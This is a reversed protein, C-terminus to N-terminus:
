ASASLSATHRNEHAYEIHGNHDVVVALRWNELVAVEADDKTSSITLAHGEFVDAVCRLFHVTGGQELTVITMLYPDCADHM